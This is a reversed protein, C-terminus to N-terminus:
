KNDVINNDLNKYLFKYINYNIKVRKIYNETEKFPIKEINNGDKSYRNDQLWKKVNGRGANYAALVLDGNNNFEKNLNGLYWCGMRINFEPSFLLEDSYNILGMKEAAWKATKPTIQMLGYASKHSKAGENFNSETKIISAVFYPSLNYEKSYEKIYKSYKLPYMIKIVSYLLIIVLTIILIFIFGKYKKLNM